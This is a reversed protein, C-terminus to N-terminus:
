KSDIPETRVTVRNPLAYIGALLAAEEAVGPGIPVNMAVPDSGLNSLSNGLKNALAPELQDRPADDGRAVGIPSQLDGIPRSARRDISRHDDTVREVGRPRQVRNSLGLIGHQAAQEIGTCRLRIVEIDAQRDISGAPGAFM